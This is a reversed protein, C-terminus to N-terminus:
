PLRKSLLDAASLMLVAFIWWLVVVSFYCIYFAIYSMIYYKIKCITNFRKPANCNGVYPIEYNLLVYRPLGFSNTKGGFPLTRITDQLPLYNMMLTYQWVGFNDVM